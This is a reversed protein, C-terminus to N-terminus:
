PRKVLYWREKRDGARQGQWVTQWGIPPLQDRSAVIIRWACRQAPSAPAPRLGTYYDLIARQADNLGQQELCDASQPLAARLALAVPRYSKYHDLWSFWLSSILAWMLTLGAAWRLSPRWAARRLGWSFLWLGTLLASFGLAAVSFEAHHGPALREFQRAFRAPWGLTQASAGLWILVAFFNFTIWGFWDFANAAGRRLRGAGAAAILTLPLLLPLLALSRAPGSLYWLLAILAGLLPLAHQRLARRDAWLSWLALPWLPWTAWGLYEFHLARPWDRGRTAEALENEWWQTWYSPADHQLAWPWALALPAAIVVALALARADRRLIPAALAALAMVLGALGHAPFSLGLGAGLLIAGIRRGQLILGAGWWALAACALGAVGPQAEHLPLLLGLAGLALLIALRGAQPSHLSNAAGALAFLFLAGFLTTALRAAVHFGLLAGFLQGFLAATWHYLPATHPWPAGAIAPALWHGDNVFGWAIGIHIADEHKWPDHNLGTLLYIAALLAVVVLPLPPSPPKVPVAFHM